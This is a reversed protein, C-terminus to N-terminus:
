PGELDHGTWFIRAQFVVLDQLLAPARAAALKAHADLVRAAQADAQSLMGALVREQMQGPGAQLGPMM